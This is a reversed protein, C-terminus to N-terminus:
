WRDHGFFLKDDASPDSLVSRVCNRYSMVIRRQVTLKGKVVFSLLRGGTDLCAVMDQAVFKM